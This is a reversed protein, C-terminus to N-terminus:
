PWKDKEFVRHIVDVEMMQNHLDDPNPTMFILVSQKPSDDVMSDDLLRDYRATAGPRLVEAPYKARLLLRAMADYMEFWRYADFMSSTLKSSHCRCKERVTYDRKGNILPCSCVAICAERAAEWRDGKKHGLIHLLTPSAHGASSHCHVPKQSSRLFGCGDWGKGSSM